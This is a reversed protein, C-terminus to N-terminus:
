RLGVWSSWRVLVGDVGVGEAFLDEGTVFVLLVVDEMAGRGEIHLLRLLHLM